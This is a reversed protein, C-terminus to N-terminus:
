PIFREDSPEMLPEAVPDMLPEYGPTELPAVWIEVRINVATTDMNILCIRSEKQYFLLTRTYKLSAQLIWGNKAMTAEFFKLLSDYDVNGNYVLNGTAFQPTMYVFSQKAELDLEKPIPVDPFERITVIPTPGEEGSPETHVMKTCGSFLLVLTLAIGVIVSKQQCIIM